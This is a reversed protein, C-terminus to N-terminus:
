IRLGFDIVVFELWNLSFTHRWIFLHITLSLLIQLVLRIQGDDGGSIWREAVSHWKISIVESLHGEMVALCREHSICCVWALRLVHVGNTDCWNLRQWTFVLRIDKYNSSWKWLYISKGATYAFTANSSNYDISLIAKQIWIFFFTTAVSNTAISTKKSVVLPFWKSYREKKQIIVFPMTIFTSIRM